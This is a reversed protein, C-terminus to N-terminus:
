ALVYPSRPPPVSVLPLELLTDAPTEGAVMSALTRAAAAGNEYPERVFYDVGRQAGHGHPDGITTVRLQEPVDLGVREAARLIAASFSENLCHVVTPPTKASLIRMAAADLSEDAELAGGQPTIGHQACWRQFGAIADNTLHDWRPGVFISPRVDDSEATAAELYGALAGRIGLRLGHVRAGPRADYGGVAVVPRGLRIEREVVPDSPMTDVVILGDYALTTAVQGDAEARAVTIAFGAEAAGAAAGAVMSRFCPMFSAETIRPDRFSPVIALVNARGNRLAQGTQNPQYGLRDGIAKVRARTSESVRGRQNYVHSVTAVSVGAALAVDRIRVRSPSPEPM